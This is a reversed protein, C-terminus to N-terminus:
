GQFVRLTSLGVCSDLLPQVHQADGAADFGSTGSSTETTPTGGEGGSQLVPVHSSKADEHDV